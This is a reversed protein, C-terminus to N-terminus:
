TESTKNCARLMLRGRLQDELFRRSLRADFEVFYFQHRLTDSAQILQRLKAVFDSKVQSTTDEYVIAVGFGIKGGPVRSSDKSRAGSIKSTV